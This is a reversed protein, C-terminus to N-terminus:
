GKYIQLQDRLQGLAKLLSKIPKKGWHEMAYDLSHSVQGGEDRKNVLCGVAFLRVLTQTANEKISCSGFNNEIIM